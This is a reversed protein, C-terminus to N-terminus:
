RIELPWRRTLPGATVTLTTAGPADGASVQVSTISGSAVVKSVRAITPDQTDWRMASEAGGPLTGLGIILPDGDPDRLTAAFTTVAARRLTFPPGALGDVSSLEASVADRVHVRTSDITADSADRVAIRADGPSVATVIATDDCVLRAGADCHDGDGAPLMAGGADLCFCRRELRATAVQADLSTVSAPTVSAPSSLAITQVTGTLLPEDLGCGFPCSRNSFRVVGRDGDTGNGRRLDTSSICGVAQAALVAACLAYAAAATVRRGSSALARATTAADSRDTPATM